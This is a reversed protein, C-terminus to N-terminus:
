AHEEIPSPGDKDFVIKFKQDLQYAYLVVGEPRMYKPAAVSGNTRLESLLDDLKHLDLMGHYLTPVVSCCEPRSENDWRRTNFLSFIRRPAASGIPVHKGNILQMDRVMGYGRGIGQGWWEGYHYGDGLKLLETENEKCWAAFGYNDLRKDTSSLWRNRSGAYVRGEHVCVLANTGDLKETVTVGIGAWRPTKGWPKFEPETPMCKHAHVYAMQEDETMNLM